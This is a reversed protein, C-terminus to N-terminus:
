SPNIKTYIAQSVSQASLKMGIPSLHISDIFNSIEPTVIKENDVLTIKMERAINKIIENQINM